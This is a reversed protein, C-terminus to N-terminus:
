REHEEQCDNCRTGAGAPCCEICCVATCDPCVLVPDNDRDEFEHGCKDCETVTPDDEIPPNM